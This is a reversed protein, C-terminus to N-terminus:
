RMGMAEDFDDLAGGTWTMRDIRVRASLNVHALRLVLAFATQRSPAEPTFGLKLVQYLLEVQLPPQPSRGSM